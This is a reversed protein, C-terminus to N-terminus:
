TRSEGTEVWPDGSSEAEVVPTAARPSATTESPM